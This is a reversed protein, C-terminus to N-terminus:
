SSNIHYNNELHYVMSLISSSHSRSSLVHLIYDYPCFIMTYIPYSLITQTTFYCTWIIIIIIINAINIIIIIVFIFIIIIIIIFIIIIIIIIIIITTAIVIAAIM